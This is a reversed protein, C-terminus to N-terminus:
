ADPCFQLTVKRGFLIARLPWQEKESIGRVSGVSMCWIPTEMLRALVTGKGQDNGSVRGVQSMPGHLSNGTSKWVFSKDRSMSGVRRFDRLCVADSKLHQTGRSESLPGLGQVLLLQGQNAAQSRKPVELGLVHPLWRSIAKYSMGPSGLCCM